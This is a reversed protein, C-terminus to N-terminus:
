ALRPSRAPEGFPSIERVAYAGPVVLVLAVLAAAWFLPYEWGGNASAFMWGNAPRQRFRTRSIRQPRSLALVAM